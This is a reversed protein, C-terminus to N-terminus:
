AIISGKEQVVRAEENLYCTGKVREACSSTRVFRFTELKRKAPRRDGRQHPETIESVRDANASYYEASTPAAPKSEHCYRKELHLSLIDTRFTIAFLLTMIKPCYDSSLTKIPPYGM